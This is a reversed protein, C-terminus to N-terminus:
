ESQTAVSLGIRGGSSGGGQPLIKREREEKEHMYTNMSINLDICSIPTPSPKVLMALM